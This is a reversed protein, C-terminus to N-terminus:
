SPYERHAVSALTMAARPLHFPPAMAVMSKWKQAKAYRVALQAEILTHIMRDRDHDWPVVEMRSRPVGSSSLRDLLLPGGGFGNPIPVPLADNHVDSVLLRM